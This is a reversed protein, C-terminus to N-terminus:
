KKFMFTSATIIPFINSPTPSAITKYNWSQPIHDFLLEYDKVDTNDFVIVGGKKVKQMALDFCPVRSRGDILILDFYDDPFERIVNVYQYFVKDKYDMNTSRYNEGLENLLYNGVPEPLILRYDVKYGKKNLVKRFSEFYEADHEISVASMNHKCWYLTSSGSGWEFVKMNSVVLSNLYRTAMFNIWPIELSNMYSQFLTTQLWIFFDAFAFEEGSFIYIRWIKIVSFLKQTKRFFKKM